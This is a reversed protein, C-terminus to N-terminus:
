IVTTSDTTTASASGGGSVSASNVLPSAANPAVNVTVTIAPYTGGTALVDSRRCTNSSCTWGTGSMSILTLGSPLNETVTVTGNTPPATSASGVVLTYTAGIQGLAFNGTHSSAISLVPSKALIITSDSAVAASSGGGSVTVVNVQPSAANGVVDVTVAIAPYTAGAPLADARSCSAGSCTWGTGAMSVLTLGAPPAETVTVAGSTPAGGPRNSVTVTYLAGNQGQSFNGAHSMVVSLAPLPVLVITPDAASATASGGGSVSAVNVLPSAANVAVNVTVTIAPYVAGAPLVDTRSCSSAVCTWGTGSMSVLALGAPLTETVTVAGNTAGAGAANAVLLTYTAAAQGQTFNGTHSKGISLVAPNPNVIAPDTASAGASGGGSVTVTNALPSAANAAVNVTVTIAPYSAGATLIDARSCTAAACSWGTGSMSVLTLGAPLTETVSVAGTTPGAAAGNSVSVTYTAGNQGQTFNGLHSKAISLAPAAAAIVTSDAATAAASGGGSVSVTNVVPSTANSAVNVTVTIAPYGAGAALVDARSCSNAACTWGTGTMSVLSLGTPVTETVAVAGTTPGATAANNVALTYIAGTQGPKFNGTHTKSISLVAARAAIVTSDTASAGASGGGSVSVTNVQPSAATASVNVAVAIAPYSAGAALVDARSCVSAACTWGTGSMSVLSLGAPLTETVTVTGSTPGASAANSVIVAYAAGAQGPTFNGVHSKSISLAPGGAIVVTSDTATASSSGGGSVSVTNLLPSAANAAVNVTVTIAPYTAGTALVDSRKCSNGSCTWGTGTMSVLTLGAPLIENVTVTGNTPPATAGNSAVLTYAAGTQGQSFNGTHSSTISLVPSKSLIVTSDSASSSASGGGSVTVVNLQPSTATSAVNVTVTIPPYAAAAQLADARTCATAACTWGAGTMSVLTLGAPLSESVTVTGTTPGASAGNSVMVTYVGSQTQTFNGIHSKAISLLPAKVTSTIVAPDVTSSLSSGGGSVSVSATLPSTANAAVNVTVAIAPYSAGAALVDSRSCSNAACTWGAGSMSVLTLGAPLTETVTVTGFTPGAAAGNSVAVTYVAGTQGQAFTGTHTQNVSLVPTKLNVITSDTANAPSSGGGSATATNLLPSAADVAVNVTAVIPPYSAGPQLVDSRSCTSASCTWGTGSMSVLTLGVPPVETVNVTGATPGAGAADSVTLTYQAGTQGQTWPGTHTVSLQLAPRVLVTFTVDYSPISGASVGQKAALLQVQRDVQALALPQPLTANDSASLNQPCGPQDGNVCNSAVTLVTSGPAGITTFDYATIIGSVTAAFSQHIAQITAGPVSTAASFTVDALINGAGNVVLASTTFLLGPNGNADVTPVVDIQDATVGSTPPVAFNSFVLRGSQITQGGAIVQSLLTARGAEAGIAALGAVALALRAARKWNQTKM